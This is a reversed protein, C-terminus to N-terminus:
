KKWVYNGGLAIGLVVLGMVLSSKRPVAVPAFALASPQDVGGGSAFIGMFAGTTGNYRLVRNNYFDTVYLNGDPGFVLDSAVSAKPDGSTFIDIFTGTKGNYRKVPGGAVVYLNGDSGFTLKGIHRERGAFVDIFAGTQGNYRRVSNNDTTRDGVNGFDGVYLNGDRGFALGTPNILSGGSAFMGMFAGTQGNYRNVGVSQSSFVSVYLNGDLGFILGNGAGSAAFVGMFAATTPNYRLVGNFSHVYLNGDRGVILGNPKVLSGGSAFTRIFAGTSGDYEIIKDNKFSCVFLHMSATQAPLSVLVAILVTALVAIVKIAQRRNAKRRAAFINFYITKPFLKALKGLNPATM